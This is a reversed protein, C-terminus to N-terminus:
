HKNHANGSVRVQNQMNIISVHIHLHEKYISLTFLTIFMCPIVCNQMSQVTHSLCFPLAETQMDSQYIVSM